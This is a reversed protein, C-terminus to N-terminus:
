TQWGFDRDLMRELRRNHPRFYDTLWRRTERQMQGRGLHEYAHFSSSASSPELGLFELVAAVERGPDSYLDESRGIHFRERPFLEFWRELQEAYRGRALYSYTQHIDSFYTPDRLMRAQEGEFLEQERELAQEFTLRLGSQKVQKRYQSFARDVPDRFLAVFRANPLVDAVRRPVHPHFIYYPSGEGILPRAGTARATRSLHAQTPFFARYWRVGRQFHWEFFHPEKVFAGEVSPHEELYHFLSTTGCRQVGIILFDPLARSNGNLSRFTRRARSLARRARNRAVKSPSFAPAASEARAASEPAREGSRKGTM